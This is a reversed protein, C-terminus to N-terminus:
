MFVSCFNYHMSGRIWCERLVHLLILAFVICVKTYLPQYLKHYKDELAKREELFQAELEDHQSQLICWNPIYNLIDHDDICTIFKVFINFVPSYFLVLKHFCLCCLTEQLFYIYIGVQLHRLCEVHKSVKPSSSVKM